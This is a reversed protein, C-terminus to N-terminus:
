CHLGQEDNKVGAAHLGCLHGLGHLAACARFFAHAHHHLATGLGPGLVHEGGVAQDEARRLVEAVHRPHHLVEELAHEVGALALDFAPRPRQEDARSLVSTACHSRHLADHGAQPQLLDALRNDHHLFQVGFV